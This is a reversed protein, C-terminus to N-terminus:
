KPRHTEDTMAVPAAFCPNHWVQQSFHMTIQPLNHRGEEVPEMTFGIRDLQIQTCMCSVYLDCRCGVRLGSKM